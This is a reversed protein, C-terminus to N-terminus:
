EGCGLAYVKNGFHQVESQIHEQINAIVTAQNAPSNTGDGTAYSPTQAATAWVLNHGRVKMNACVAENVLNDGNGYTYTGLSAEVSSWKLDNGPTM